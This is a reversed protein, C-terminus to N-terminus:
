GRNHAHPCSTPSDIPGEIQVAKRGELAGPRARFKPVGDICVSLPDRVHHETTIIDGTRLNRIDDSAIHTEALSVVLEVTSHPVRSNQTVLGRTSAHNRGDMASLRALDAAVPALAKAPLCLSVLGRASDVAVECAIRVTTEAPLVIRAAHPDSQVGLVSM